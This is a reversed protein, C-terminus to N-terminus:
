REEPRQRAVLRKVTAELEDPEAPKALHAAFGFERAREKDAKMGYGTVAVLPVHAFRPDARLRRALEYGNLKPMGIDLIVVDPHFEAAISVARTADNTSMVQFGMTELLACLTILGDVHDDVVLIRVTRANQPM